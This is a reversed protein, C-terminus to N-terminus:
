SLVRPESWGQIWSLSWPCPGWGLARACFIHRYRLETEAVGGDRM